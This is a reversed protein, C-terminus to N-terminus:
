RRVAYAASGTRLRQQSQWYSWGARVVRFLDESTFPESLLEYGGAEVVDDWDNRRATQALVIVCARYPPASLCTVADRWDLGPTTRDCLVVGIERRQLLTQAEPLSEATLIEWGELAQLAAAHVHPDVSILIVWRVPAAPSIGNPASPMKTWIRRAYDALERLSFATREM